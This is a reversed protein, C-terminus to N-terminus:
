HSLKICDEVVDVVDELWHGVFPQNNGVIFAVWGLGMAMCGVRSGFWRVGLGGWCGGRGSFDIGRNIAM